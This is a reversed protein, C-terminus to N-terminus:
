LACLNMAAQALVSSIWVPDPDMAPQSAWGFRRRVGGGPCGRKMSPGLEEAQAQIGDLVRTVGRIWDALTAEGHRCAVNGRLLDHAVYRLVEDLKDTPRRRYSVM